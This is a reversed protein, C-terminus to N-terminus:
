IQSPKQGSLFAEVITMLDDPYAHRLNPYIKLGSIFKKKMFLGHARTLSQETADARGTILLFQSYQRGFLPSPIDTLVPLFREVLFGYICLVKPFVKPHLLATEIAISGGKSFGALLVKSSHIPYISKIYSLLDVLRERDDVPTRTYAQYFDSGKPVLVIAGTKKAIPAWQEIADMPKQQLGYLAIILPVKRKWNITDPLYMYVNPHNKLSLVHLPETAFLSATILVCTIVLYRTVM